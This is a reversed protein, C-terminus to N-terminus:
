KKYGIVGSLNARTLDAGTLNAGTLNAGSLDARTLNAFNLNVNSLIAGAFNRENGAYAQLFEKATM